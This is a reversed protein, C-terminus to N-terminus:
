NKTEPGSCVAAAAASLENLQRTLQEQLGSLQEPTLNKDVHVPEGIAIAINAFPKPIFLKDWSNIRWRRDAANAMPLIPAGTMQALTLWGLKFEFAPGRPGDSTTAVCLHEKKLALYVDRLAKAGSRSSSGRIVRAGLNNFVTTAIEGDRSPSALFGLKLGRRQLGLLYSAGFVMQQHWYCPLFPSDQQILRRVHEEGAVSVIKCTGSLLRAFQTLVAPALRDKLPRSFRKLDVNM